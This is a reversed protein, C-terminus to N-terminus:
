KNLRNKVPYIFKGYLTFALLCFAVNGREGQNEGSPTGV